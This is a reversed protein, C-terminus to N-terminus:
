LETASWGGGLAQILAVSSTLRRGLITLATRENALTAAQVVVVALYNATGARYQNLVITL